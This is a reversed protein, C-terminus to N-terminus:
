VDSLFVSKSDCTKLAPEMRSTHLGRGNIVPRTIASGDFTCPTTRQRTRRFVTGRQTTWYPQLSTYNSILNNTPKNKNKAMLYNQVTDTARGTYRQIPSHDTVLSSPIFRSLPPRGLSSIEASLQVSPRFSVM